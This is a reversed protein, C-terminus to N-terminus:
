VDEERWEPPWLHLLVLRLWFVLVLPVVVRCPESAWVGVLGGGSPSFPDDGSSSSDACCRRQWRM